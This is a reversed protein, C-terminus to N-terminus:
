PTGGTDHGASPPLARPTPGTLRPRPVHPGAPPHAAAHKLYQRTTNAVVHPLVDTFAQLSPVGNVATRCDTRRGRELTFPLTRELEEGLERGSTHSSQPDARSWPVVANVWPRAEADFARLRRVRDADTLAWRDVLMIVPRDATRKDPDDSPVASSPTDEDDFDAVSIRYDLSRILEEALATVPQTSETHYPNWDQPTEGYPRPDRHEPIGERTPAVVSLHLHRPGQGRPKFASPTSEFQRPRGPPLPSDTAV